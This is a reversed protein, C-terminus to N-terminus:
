EVRRGNGGAIRAELSPQWSTAYGLRAVAIRSRTSGTLAPECIVCCTSAPVSALRHLDLVRGTVSRGEPRAPSGRVSSLAPRGSRGCRTEGGLDPSHIRHRRTRTAAPSSVASVQGAGLADNIRPQHPRYPRRARSGILVAVFGSETASHRTSRHPSAWGATHNGIAVSGSYARNCHPRIPVMPSSCM